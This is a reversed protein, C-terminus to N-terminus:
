HSEHTKEKQLQDLSKCIDFLLAIFAVPLFAKTMTPLREVIESFRKEFTM